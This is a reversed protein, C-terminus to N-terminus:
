SKSPPVVTKTRIDSFKKVGEKYYIKEASSLYISGRTSELNINGANRFIMPTNPNAGWIVLGKDSISIVYDDKEGSKNNIPKDVTGKQTINVRLYLSGNQGSRITTDKDHNDPNGIELIVSGDTQTVISRGQNDAGFWSVMSGACDMLLSKGDKSDRGISSILSGEFNINGSVGSSDETNAIRKPNSDDIEFANSYAKGGTQSFGRGGYAVDGGHHIAPQGCTIEIDSYGSVEKKGSKKFDKKNVFGPKNRPIKYVPKTDEISGITLPNIDSISNAISREACAWMNHYMTPNIREGGNAYNLDESSFGSHEGSFHRLGYYRIGTKREEDPIAPYYENLGTQRVIPIETVKPIKSKPFSNIGFGKSYYDCSVPHLINGFSNTKPVNLRFAGQKDVAFVFNKDYMCEEKLTNRTNVQFHYGIGRKDLNSAEIIKDKRSKTKPDENGDGLVIPLYNIDLPVRNKSVNGSIVEVIQNPAMNLSNFGLFIHKMELAQSETMDKYLADGKSKADGEYKDWGRFEREMHNYVVRTESRAFNRPSSDQGVEVYPSKPFAATVLGLGGLEHTLSNVNLSNGYSDPVAVREPSDTPLRMMFGSRYSHGKSFSNKNSNINYYVSDDSGFSYINIGLGHANSVEIGGDGDLEIESHSDDRIVLGGELDLLNPYSTEGSADNESSSGAAKSPEPAVGLCITTENADIKVCYVRSGNKPYSHIGKGSIGAISMPNNTEIGPQASSSTRFDSVMITNTEPKYENVYYAKIKYLGMSNLMNKLDYDINKFNQNNQAVMAAISSVLEELTM